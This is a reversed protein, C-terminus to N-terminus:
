FLSQSEGFENVRMRIDSSQLPFDVLILIAVGNRTRYKFFKVNIALSFGSFYPNRCYKEYLENLLRLLYQLPFDVLILIAVPKSIRRIIPNQFQLPFDM